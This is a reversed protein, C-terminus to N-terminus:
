IPNNKYNWDYDFPPKNPKDKIWEAYGDEIAERAAPLYSDYSVPLDAMTREHLYTIKNISDGEGLIIIALSMDKYIDYWSHLYHLSEIGVEWESGELEIPSPFNTVFDGPQNAEGKVRSTLYLRFENQM